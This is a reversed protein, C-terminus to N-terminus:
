LSANNGYLYLLRNIDSAFWRLKRWVTVKFGHLFLVYAFCFGGCPIQRTYFTNKIWDSGLVSTYKDQPPIWWCKNHGVKLDVKAIVSKHGVKRSYYHIEGVNQAIVSRLGLKVSERMKKTPKWLSLGGRRQYCLYHVFHLSNIM